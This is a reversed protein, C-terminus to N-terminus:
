VHLLKILLAVVGGSVSGVGLLYALVIRKEVYGELKKEIETIRNNCESREVAQGEKLEAMKDAGNSLRQEMIAKYVDFENKVGIVKEVKANLETVDHRLYKINQNIIVLTITNTNEEGGQGLLEDGM